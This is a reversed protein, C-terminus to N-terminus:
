DSRIQGPTMGYHKKFVRYFYAIDEYGALQAAHKISMGEDVILGRAKEMRRRVIYETLNEGISTKFMRSLHEKSVLFQGAVSELSIAEQYHADVYHKVDTMDLRNRSHRFALLSDIVKAYLVGVERIADGSGFDHGIHPVAESLLAALSLEQESLFQELMLLLDNAIRLMSGAELGAEEISFEKMLREFSSAVADRNLDMLYTYMRERLEGYRQMDAVSSFIPALEVWPTSQSQELESKSQALAADLEDPKIPKLLYEVAKSRIAQKLYVFDDYGSMVIIKLKPYREHMAQLLEVGDTGPMRMDTIVIDPRLEDIKRLGENGDEAEGVILLELRSWHGLAKVVERSWPEDDIILVKYM